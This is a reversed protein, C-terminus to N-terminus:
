SQSLVQAVRWPLGLQEDNDCHVIFVSLQEASGQVSDHLIDGM